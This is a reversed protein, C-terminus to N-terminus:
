FIVKLVTFINKTYKYFAIIAYFYFLFEAICLFM